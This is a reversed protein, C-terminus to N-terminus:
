MDEMGGEICHLIAMGCVDCVGDLNADMNRVAKEVDINQPNRANKTMYQIEEEVSSFQMPASSQINAPLKVTTPSSPASPSSVSPSPSSTPSRSVSAAATTISTAIEVRHAFAFDTISALQGNVDENKSGYSILIKDLDNFVYQEYQDHPQGNVYFKLTKGGGTCYKEGSDLVLCDKDFKMGVSEFFIWLPVGTAHMHLVDGTKEPAPAGQDLHIFSSTKPNNMQSMDMALSDLRTQELAKGQVYIKWDAHSHQSGLKGIQSASDMSCQMEGSDICMEVPMGCSDCKGDHDKDMFKTALEVDFPTLSMKSQRAGMPSDARAVDTPAVGASDGASFFISKVTFILAVGAVLLTLVIFTTIITDSTKM